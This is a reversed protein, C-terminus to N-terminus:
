DSKKSRPAEVVPPRPTFESLQLRLAHLDADKEEVSRSVRLLMFLLTWYMVLCVALWFDRQARHLHNLYHCRSMETTVEVEDHAYKVFVKHSASLLFLSSCVLVVAILPIHKFMPALLIKTIFKNIVRRTNPGVPISLSILLVAAVPVLIWAAFLLFIDMEFKDCFTM